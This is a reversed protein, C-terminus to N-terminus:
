NRGKERIKPYEVVVYRRWYADLSGHKIIHKGLDFKVLEQRISHLANLEGDGGMVKIRNKECQCICYFKISKKAHRTIRANKKSSQFIWHKFFYLWLLAYLNELSRPHSTNGRKSNCFINQTNIKNLLCFFSNQAHKEFVRSEKLFAILSPSVRITAQSTSGIFCGILNWNVCFIKNSILQM